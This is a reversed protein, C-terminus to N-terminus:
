GIQLKYIKYNQHSVVTLNTEINLFEAADKSIEVLVSNERVIRVKGIISSGKRTFIVPQGERAKQNYPNKKKKM